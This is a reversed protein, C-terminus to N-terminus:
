CRWKVLRGCDFGRRWPFRGAIAKDPMVSAM